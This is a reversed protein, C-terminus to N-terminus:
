PYSVITTPGQHTPTVPDGLGNIVHDITGAGNLSVTLLDHMAIGPRVPTVFANASHLSPNVNTFIYSGLGWAEHTRVRSDVVYAPYGPSGHDAWDAQTPADYPMENQFMITRGHEGNWIVNQKQYHEVFLGTATVGDGNVVLGTAATNSAWGVGNGHDARWAWIDDLVVDDNNIELSLTAKGVHPGGIRFYVDQIGTPDAANGCHPHSRGPGGGHRSGVQLLVPSNVPGADIMLGAIDVGTVNGVALPTAGHQATLTAVGLGLVITGPRRVTITRDIDYVGPTFILNEGRDLAANITSVRDGPHALYFDRLPISRGATPAAQWTTGHANPQARPVFVNYAGHGDVYLYPKERSIPNTALTTYPPSPFSQAPAGDAGAFVQNWVGNSWGDLSSNRVLFQQQSGNIVTGGAFASDAIFGGSAFQPGASCFDMLSLNGGTVSVRRLSAAQSVAWFETGSQCGTHGAVNITLNSMSRWFNVLATCDTPAGPPTPFCQNFVDIAGNITVDGPNRGLGAVETYYGVTFVLPHEVSGYTGPKFLLAYRDTGFQNSIQRSGIENVTSQIQDQPMSPDFVIVNQGFSPQGSAHDPTVPAASAAPASGVALALGAAATLLGLRVTHPRRFTHPRMRM